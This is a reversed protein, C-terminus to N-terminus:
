SVKFQQVVKQLEEAMRSLSHASSTIEEMSALQEEAASAVEHTNETTEKTIAAITTFSATVQQSGASIQEATAAMSDIQDTVQKTSEIIENFNRETDGAIALGEKVERTVHAMGDISSTMDQQIATILQGIQSSSRRSEEALKRVEDAVVAFGKGQEGARAAEIAANLALLNTQEAIGNIVEIIKGIEKSREDLTRITQDSTLVSTLISNMQDVTKKVSEGGSQAKQITVSSTESIRSSSEAMQQIGFSVEELALVSEAVRENQQEAGSSVQQISATINETAKSTQDASATLEGAYSAVYDANSRVRHILNKLNLSMKNMSETLRGIEDNTKVQLEDGTLDGGAIRQIHETVHQIPRSIRGAVFWAIILIGIVSLGTVLLTFDRTKDAAALITDMPTNFSLSYGAIDIPTYALVYEEGNETVISNGAETKGKVLLDKTDANLEAENINKGIVEKIPYVQLIDQNDVLIPFAGMNDTNNLFDDILQEFNITASLVGMTEGNNGIVPSAAVIIRNGTSKSTLVNSITSEGNMGNKFYDRDGLNMVGINEKTTHAQVVGDPATFVVTEYVGSQEKMTDMLTLQEELVLSKIAETKAILQVESSRKDLWQGMGQATSNVLAQLGEQEKKVMENSNLSYLLASVLGLPILGVALFWIILKKRITPESNGKLKLTEM